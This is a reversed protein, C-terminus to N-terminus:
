AHLLLDAAFQPRSAPYTPDRPLFRGIKMSTLGVIGIRDGAGATPGRIKGAELGWNAGVQQQLTINYHQVVPTEFDTGWGIFILGPPFGPTGTVGALPNAFPSTTMNLPFNVETLPQFPPALTGNQFFDGQGPLTDYFLGWASRM